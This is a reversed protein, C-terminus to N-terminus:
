IDADPAVAFTAKRVSFSDNGSFVLHVERGDLSMWKTPLHQSEGWDQVSENSNNQYYVTTWPGYPNPADFIGFHNRGGNKARSRMTMLYRKLGANYAVDLRNCGGAFSFVPKRRDFEKTWRPQGNGDVGAYFEYAARRMIKNKDARFLIVHDTEKYASPTDPSYMYVYDDVSGAYNKGYNLFCIYGLHPM